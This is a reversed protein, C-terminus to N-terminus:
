TRAEANAPRDGAAGGFARDLRALRRRVYRPVFILNISWLLVGAAILATLERMKGDFREFVGDPGRGSAGAVDLSVTLSLLALLVLGFLRLGPQYDLMWPAGVPPPRSRDVFLRWAQVCAFIPVLLAQLPDIRDLHELLRLLLPVLLGAGIIAFLWLPWASYRRGLASTDVERPMQKRLITNRTRVDRAPDDAEAVAVVFGLAAFANGFPQGSERIRGIVVLEALTSAFLSACLWAFMPAAQWDLLYLGALTLSSQFLGMWGAARAAPAYRQRLFADLEGRMGEALGRIRADVPVPQYGEANRRAM